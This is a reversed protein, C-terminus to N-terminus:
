ILFNMKKGAQNRDRITTQVPTPPNLFKRLIVHRVYSLAYDQVAARAPLPTFPYFLPLPPLLRLHRPSRTLTKDHKEDM